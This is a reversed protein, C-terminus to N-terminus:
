GLGLMLRGVLLYATLAQVLFEFSVGGLAMGRSHVFIAAGIGYIGGSLAYAILKLRVESYFLNAVVNNGLKRISLGIHSNYVYIPIFYCVALIVAHWLHIDLQGPAASILRTDKIVVSEGIWYISVTHAILSFVLGSMLSPVALITQIASVSASCFVGVLMGGTISWAYSETANWCVAASIGSLV